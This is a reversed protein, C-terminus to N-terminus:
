RAKRPNQAENGKTSEVRSGRTYDPKQREVVAFGSRRRGERMVGRFKAVLCYLRTAMDLAPGGDAPPEEPALKM